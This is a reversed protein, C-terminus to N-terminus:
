PVLISPNILDNSSLEEPHQKGIATLAKYANTAIDRGTLALPRDYLIMSALKGDVVQWEVRVALPRAGDTKNEKTRLNNATFILYLQKFDMDDILKINEFIDSTTIIEDIETYIMYEAVGSSEIVEGNVVANRKIEPLNLGKYVFDRIQKESLQLPASLKRVRDAVELKWGLTVSNPKTPHKGSAFLLPQSEFIHGISRTTKEIIEEYNQGFFSEAREASMKNEQFENSSRSKISIKFEKQYGYSEALVYVDTKPEGSGNQSRPKGVTILNFDEGQFTFGGESQIVQIIKEELIGYNMRALIGM